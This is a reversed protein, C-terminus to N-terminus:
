TPDKVPHIWQQQGDQYTERKWIPVDNKLQDMIWPVALFVESRHAGSCGVVVSAQGIPLDGTCHVILVRALEFKQAAKSALRDLEKIAMTPHAEYSLTSTIRDGTTRRTVGYFWVHAGVDPDGLFNRYSGLDPHSEIPQDVVDVHTKASFPM